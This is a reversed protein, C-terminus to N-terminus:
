SLLFHHLTSICILIRPPVQFWLWKLIHKSVKVYVNRLDLISHVHFQDHCIVVFLICKLSITWQISWVNLMQIFHIIWLIYFCNKKVLEIRELIKFPWPYDILYGLVLICPSMRFFLSIWFKCIFNVEVESIWAM